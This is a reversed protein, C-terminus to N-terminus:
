PLEEIGSFMNVQSSAKEGTKITSIKISRKLHPPLLAPAKLQNTARPTAM